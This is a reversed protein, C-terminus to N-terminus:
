VIIEKSPITRIDISGGKFSSESYSRLLARCLRHVFHCLLVNLSKMFPWHSSIPAYVPLHIQLCYVYLLLMHIYPIWKLESFKIWTSKENDNLKKQHIYDDGAKWLRRLTVANKGNVTDLYQWRHKNLLDDWCILDAQFHYPKIPGLLSM